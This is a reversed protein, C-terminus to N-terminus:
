MTNVSVTTAYDYKNKSSLEIERWPSYCIARSFNGCASCVSIQFHKGRWKEFNGYVPSSITFNINLKRFCTVAPFWHGFVIWILYYQSSYVCCEMPVSVMNIERESKKEHVTGITDLYEFLDSGFCVCNTYNHDSSRFENIYEWGYNNSIKQYKTGNMRNREM